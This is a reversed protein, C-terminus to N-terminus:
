IDSRNLAVQAGFPFALALSTWFSIEVRSALYWPVLTGAHQAFDLAPLSIGAWQKLAVSMACYGFVIALSTVVGRSANKFLVTLFYTLGFIVAAMLVLKVATLPVSAISGQTNLQITWRAQRWLAPGVALTMCGLAVVASITM